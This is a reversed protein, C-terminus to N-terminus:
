IGGPGGGNPTLDSLALVLFPALWVMSFSILTPTPNPGGLNVSRTVFNIINDQHVIM